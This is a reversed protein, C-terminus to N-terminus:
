FKVAREMSAVGARRRPSAPEEGSSACGVCQNIEVCTVGTRWSSSAGDDGFFVRRKETAGDGTWFSAALFSRNETAGEGLFRTEISSSFSSVNDATSKWAM